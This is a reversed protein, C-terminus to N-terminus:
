PSVPLKCTFQRPLTNSRFLSHHPISGRWSMQYTAAIYFLCKICYYLAVSEYVTCLFQSYINSATTAELLCKYAQIRINTDYSKYYAWQSFTQVVLSNNRVTMKWKSLQIKRWLVDYIHVQIADTESRGRRSRAHIYLLTIHLMRKQKDSPFTVRECIM